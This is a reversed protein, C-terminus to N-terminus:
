GWGLEINVDLDLYCRGECSNDGCVGQFTHRPFNKVEFTHRTM